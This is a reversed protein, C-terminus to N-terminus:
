AFPNRPPRDPGSTVFRPALVLPADVATASTEMTVVTPFNGLAAFASCCAACASCRHGAFEQLADSGASQTQSPSVLAVAPARQESHGMVHGQASPAAADRLAHQQAADNADGISAAHHNADCFLMNVGAVGQLPIALALVWILLTGLPLRM